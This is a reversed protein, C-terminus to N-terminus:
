AFWRSGGVTLTGQTLNNPASSVYFLPGCGFLGAHHCIPHWTVAAPDSVYKQLVGVCGQDHYVQVVARLYLDRRIIRAGWAELITM